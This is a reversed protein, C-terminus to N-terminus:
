HPSNLDLVKQWENGGDLSRFVTKNEGALYVLNPNSPSVKCFRFYTNAPLKLDTFTDGSDMSKLLREGSVYIINPDSPSIAVSSFWGEEKKKWLKGNYYSKFIGNGSNTGVKTDASMLIGNKKNPLFAIADIRDYKSGLPEFVKGDNESRFMQHYSKKDLNRFSRYGVALVTEADKPDFAFQHIQLDDSISAIGTQWTEGGDISKLFRYDMFVGAYIEAPKKPNIELSNFGSGDPIKSFEAAKIWADGNDLSKYISKCGALFLEAPNAPNICMAQFKENASFPQKDTKAFAKLQVWSNGAEDTKYIGGCSALVYAIQDNQPDFYIGKLDGPDQWQPIQFQTLAFALLLYLRGKGSRSPLSSPSTNGTEPKVSIM